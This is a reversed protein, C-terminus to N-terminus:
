SLRGSSQDHFGGVIRLLTTKGSGSPGIFTILEGQAVDISIDKLVTTDGFSKEINEIRLLTNTQDAM